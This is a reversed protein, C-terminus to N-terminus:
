TQSHTNVHGHIHTNISMGIDTLTYQCAWTQSHKNVHGHRHTNISMGM